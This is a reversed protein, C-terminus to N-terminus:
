GEMGNLVEEGIRVMVQDAYKEAQPGSGNYRRLAERMRQAPTGKTQALNAKLVKIACVANKKPVLLDSYSKLGCTKAHFGYIVQLLGFSSAYFKKEIDNLHAPPKFRSMLHPEFRVRDTSGLHGSEQVAMARIVAAPIGNDAAVEEIMAEISKPQPKFKEIPELALKEQVTAKAEDVLQGATSLAIQTGTHIVHAMIVVTGFLAIWKGVFLTTKIKKGM